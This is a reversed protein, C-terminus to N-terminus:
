TRRFCGAEGPFLVDEIELEDSGDYWDKPALQMGRTPTAETQELDVCTASIRVRSHFIGRHIRMRGSLIRREYDDQLQSRGM